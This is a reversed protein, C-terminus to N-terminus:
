AKKKQLFRKSTPNKQKKQAACYTAANPQKVIVSRYRELSETDRGTQELVSAAFLVTQVNDPDLTAARELATLQGTHTPPSTSIQMRKKAECTM